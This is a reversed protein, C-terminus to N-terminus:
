RPCAYGGCWMAPDAFQSSTRGKKILALDRTGGNIPVQYVDYERGEYTMTAPSAPYIPSNVDAVQQQTKLSMSASRLLPSLFAALLVVAVFTVVFSRGAYRVTRPQVGRRARARLRALVSPRLQPTEAARDHTAM